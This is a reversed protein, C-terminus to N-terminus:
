SPAGAGSHTDRMTLAEGAMARAEGLRGDLLYAEALSIKSHAQVQRSRFRTAEVV